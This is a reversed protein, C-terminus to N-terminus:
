QYEPSILCFFDSTYSATRQTASQRLPSIIHVPPSSSLYYYLSAIFTVEYEDGLLKKVACPSTVDYRSM